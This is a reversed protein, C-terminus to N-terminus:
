CTGKGKTKAGRRVTKAPAANRNGAREAVASLNEIIPCCAVPGKGSCDKMLRELASRMARLDRIKEDIDRVKGQAFELVDSCTARPVQRFRLLERVERLSFGLEQTRKIFLILKVSGPPYERYGSERRPPEPLLGKREYFRLTEVNVGAQNALQGTRLGSMGLVERMTPM